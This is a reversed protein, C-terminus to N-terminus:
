STNIGGLLENVYREESEHLKRRSMGEVEM